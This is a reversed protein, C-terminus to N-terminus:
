LKVLEHEASPIPLSLHNRHFITEYVEQAKLTACRLVREIENLHHDRKHIVRIEALYINRKSLWLGVHVNVGARQEHRQKPDHLEPQLYTARSREHADDEILEGRTALNHVRQYHLFNRIADDLTKAALGIYAVIGPKRLDIKPALHRGSCDDGSLEAAAEFFM